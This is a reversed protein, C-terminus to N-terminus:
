DRGLFHVVEAGDGNGAETQGDVDPRTQDQASEEGLAASLAVGLRHVHTVIVAM